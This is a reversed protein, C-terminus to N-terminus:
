RKPGVVEELTEVSARKAVSLSVASNNRVEVGIRGCAERFIAQIDLSHNAFLYRIYEYTKGRVVVRNISRCGDSHILGRALLAPYEDLAIARQWDALVIRREHKRGPGHQPFLCAWHRSYSSVVSCGIARRVGVPKGPLVAEIAGRCERLLQPYDDCCSIELRMVNARRPARALTGDGLYLGLLYAYARPNIENRVDCFDISCPTTLRHSFEAAEPAGALLWRRVTSPSVGVDLAIAQITLGLARM